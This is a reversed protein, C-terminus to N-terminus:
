RYRIWKLIEMISPKKGYMLIGVRYIRASLWVVFVSTLLLVSLSLALEWWPVDFALRMMMVMPSSFPIVSAWFALPGDPNEAGYIGAYLSFVMFLIMPAMFQQSDEQQSLASGIAAFMAGYLIYGGVFYLFFFFLLKAWPVAFLASLGSMEVDSAVVSQVPEGMAVGASAILFITLVCWLIFQTLGVLGIGIIKGMMLDFPRVSSIMVEIIRNTKEEMVGQMVMGGYSIIFMYIILTAMMGLITAVDSSSKDESGDDNWKVTQVSYNEKAVQMVSDINEINFGALKENRLAETLIHNIDRVLNNPLQRSSYLTAADPNESLPASINLFATIEKNEKKRYEDMSGEAKICVCSETDEFLSEYKGTSDMIVVTKAESDQFTALWMPVFVLAAFLVPMLITLLWFSKKKIRFSYEREIILGINSM